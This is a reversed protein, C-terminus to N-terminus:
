KIFKKIIKRKNEDLIKFEIQLYKKPLISKIREPWEVLILNSKNNIIEEWGLELMNKDNVRYCDLHYIAKCNIAMKCNRTRSQQKSVQTKINSNTRYKKIIVFTPSTFPGKAGLAKLMGQAFTTKGSGLEGKLVIFNNDGLGSLLNEAIEWTKEKSNSIFEKRNM